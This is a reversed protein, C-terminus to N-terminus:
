PPGPALTRRPQIYGQEEAMALLRMSEEVM